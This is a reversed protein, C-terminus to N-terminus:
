KVDVDVVVLADPAAFTSFVRPASGLHEASSGVSGPLVNFFAAVGAPGTAAAGTTYLHRVGTDYSPPQGQVPAVQANEAVQGMALVRVALVGNGPETIVMSRAHVDAMDLRSLIPLVLGTASLNGDLAAGVAGGFWDLDDATTTVVVRGGAPQGPPSPIDFKGGAAIFHGAQGDAHVELNTAGV